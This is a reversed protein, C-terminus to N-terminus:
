QDIKWRDQVMRDPWLHKAYQWGRGDYIETLRGLREKFAEYDKEGNTWQVEALAAMRPLAMYEVTAPVTMYETWLNAQVGLIHEAAEPSLGEPMPDLGYVKEVDIVCFGTVSPEYRKDESQCYDFYCHTLPALVVDHGAEAAAKGPQLGRWAMITTSRGIGSGLLEDWGLIRKGKSNVYEEVRRTFQGQLSEGEALEVAQCKPCAEWRVTPTEDGGIHLYGAPFLEALEDIIGFLLPYIDENGMCLVDNYVGWKHGVEYPGGTCGLEPYAALVSSTHGPMDFEPIVSIYREAAYAVVQRIQEQTYYGGYPAGDDIDSNNAIVTGSRMSGKAVLEPFSKLEIRWGQDDTLHWHFRNMNHLAMMDLFEKVFEVPFFHRACDLMMGRWGFRPADEVEGAPLTISVQRGERAPLSKGLTQVAYFVGTASGGMVMISDSTVRIMYADKDQIGGDIALAITGKGGGASIGLCLGTREEIFSQLFLANRAMAEDSGDVAIRVGEDLVFPTDDSLTIVSPLPVVRYDAQAHAGFAFTVALMATLMKRHM